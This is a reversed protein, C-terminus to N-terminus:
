VELAPAEEEERKMDRRKSCEWKKHGEEGCKFCRMKDEVVKQRRVERVGCQMVRNALVEFRNEGKKKKEDKRGKSRCNKALHGFQQCEWCKRGERGELEERLKALARQQKLLSSMTQNYVELSM